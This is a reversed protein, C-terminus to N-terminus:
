KRFIYGNYHGNSFEFEDYYENVFKTKGMFERSSLYSKEPNPRPNNLNHKLNYSVLMFTGDATLIDYLKNILELDPKFRSIIVSDFSEPKLTEIFLKIESQILKIRLNEINIKNRFIQFIQPLLM